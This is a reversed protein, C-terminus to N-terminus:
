QQYLLMCKVVSLFRAIREKRLMLETEAEMRALRCVGQKPVQTLMVTKSSVIGTVVQGVPVIQVPTVVSFTVM